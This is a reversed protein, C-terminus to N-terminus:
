IKKTLYEFIDKMKKSKELDVYYKLEKLDKKTCNDLNLRLEDIQKVSFLINKRFYLFDFLAKALTAEAISFGNKKKIKFGVFLEKKISYYKFIGLYNSLRKTKKECVLTFSNVAESMVGYKELVYELSLYSPEYIINGVFECYEDFFNKRQVNELFNKSVYIGRKLSKIEGRKSLRYFLVKLYNRNKELPALDAISFYPLNKVTEKIKESKNFKKIILMSM